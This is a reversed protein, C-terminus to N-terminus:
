RHMRLTRHLSPSYLVFESGFRGFVVERIVALVMKM